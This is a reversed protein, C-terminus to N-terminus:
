ITKAHGFRSVWCSLYGVALEDVERTELPVAEVWGSYSDTIVLLHRYVIFKGAERSWVHALPLNEVLDM